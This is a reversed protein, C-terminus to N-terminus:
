KNGYDIKSTVEKKLELLEDKPLTGSLLQSRREMLECMMRRVQKYREKQGAQLVAPTPVHVRRGRDGRCPVALGRGTGGPGWDEGLRGQAALARPEQLGRRHPSREWSGGGASVVYLQKWIAAWERLTTTIEQVLPMESPVVTEEARPHPVVPSSPCPPM